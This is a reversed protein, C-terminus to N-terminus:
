GPRSAGGEAVEMVVGGAAVGRTHKAGRGRRERASFVCFMFCAGCGRTYVRLTSAASRLRGFKRAAAEGLAEAAGRGGTAALDAVYGGAREAVRLRERRQGTRAFAGGPPADHQRRM